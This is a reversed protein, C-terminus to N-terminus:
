DGFVRLGYLVFSNDSFRSSLNMNLRITIPKKFFDDAQAATLGFIQMLGSKSVLGGICGRTFGQRRQVFDGPQVTQRDTIIGFVVDFSGNFPLGTNPDILSPDKLVDSEITFSAQYTFSAVGPAATSNSFTWFPLTTISHCLLSNATKGPLTMRGIDRERAATTLPPPAAEVCRDDPFNPDPPPCGTTISVTGSQAVGLFHVNRGFSDADGVDAATVGGNGTAAPAQTAMRLEARAQRLVDGADGKDAAAATCVAAGIAVLIWFRM